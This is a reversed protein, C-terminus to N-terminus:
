LKHHVQWLRSPGPLTSGKFARAPAKPNPRTIFAASASGGASLFPRGPSSIPRARRWSPWRMPLMGPQAWEAWPVSRLIAETQPSGAPNADTFLKTAIPGPAVNNVNINYPAMELAWTRTLGILGAKCASYVTRDQKGLSARSGINVIKGYRQTKMHALCHKACFFAGKLNVRTAQDWDDESVSALGAPRVIGANNVLIHVGGYKKVVGTLAQGVASERGVDAVRGHCPFGRAPLNM